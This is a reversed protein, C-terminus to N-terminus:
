IRRSATIGTAGLTLPPRQRIQRLAPQNQQLAIVTATETFNVQDALFAPRDNEDLHPRAPVPTEATRRFAQRRAFLLPNERRRAM